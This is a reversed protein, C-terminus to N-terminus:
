NGIFPLPTNPILPFWSSATSFSKGFSLNFLFPACHFCIYFCNMFAFLFQRSPVTIIVVIYFYVLFHDLHDVCYPVFSCAICITWARYMPSQSRFLIPTIFQLFSRLFQELKMSKWSVQVISILSM